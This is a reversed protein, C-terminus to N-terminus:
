RLCTINLQFDDLCAYTFLFISTLCVSFCLLGTHHTHTAPTEAKTARTLNAKVELIVPRPLKIVQIM